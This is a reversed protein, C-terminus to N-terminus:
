LTIPYSYDRYLSFSRLNLKKAVNGHRRQIAFFFCLSRAVTYFGGVRCMKVNWYRMKVCYVTKRSTPPTTPPDLYKFLHKYARRKEKGATKRENAKGSSARRKREDASVSLRACDLYRAVQPAIVLVDKSKSNNQKEEFHSLKASELPGRLFCFNVEAPEFPWPKHNTSKLKNQKKNKQKSTETTHHLGKM